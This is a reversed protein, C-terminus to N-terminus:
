SVKFTQSSLRVLKRNGFSSIMTMMIVMMMMMMMMMTEKRESRLM